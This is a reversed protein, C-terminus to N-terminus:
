DVGCLPFRTRTEAWRSWTPLCCLHLLFFSKRNTWWKLRVHEMTTPAQLNAFFRVFFVGKDSEFFYATTAWIMPCPFHFMKKLDRNLLVTGFQTIVVTTKRLVLWMDTISYQHLHKWESASVLGMYQCVAHLLLREFSLWLYLCCFIVKGSRHRWVSM